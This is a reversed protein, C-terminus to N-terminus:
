ILNEVFDFILRLKRVNSIQELMGAIENQLYDIEASEEANIRYRDSEM